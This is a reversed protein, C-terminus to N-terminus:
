YQGTGASLLHCRIDHWNKLSYPIIGGLCWDPGPVSTWSVCNDMSWWIGSEETGLWSVPQSSLKQFSSNQTSHSM